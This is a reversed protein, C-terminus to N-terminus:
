RVAPLIRTPGHQQRDGRSVLRRGVESVQQVLVRRLELRELQREALSVDEIRLCGGLAARRRKKEVHVLDPEHPSVLARGAFAERQLV